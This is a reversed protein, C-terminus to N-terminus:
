YLLAANKAHNPAWTLIILLVFSCNKPVVINVVLFCSWLAELMKRVIGKDKSGCGMFMDHRAM